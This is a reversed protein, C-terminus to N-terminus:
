NAVKKETGARHPQNGQKLHARQENTLLAMKKENIEKMLQTGEAHMQEAKAKEQPSLNLAKMVADHTQDHNLKQAKAKERAEQVIKEREPTMFSKFRAHLSELRPQYEKKLEALKQKQEDNLVIGPPFSFPDHEMKGDGGKANNGGANHAAPQAAALLGILGVALPVLFMRRM